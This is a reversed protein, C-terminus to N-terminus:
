RIDRYDGRQGFRTRPVYVIGWRRRADECLGYGCGGTRPQTAEGDAPVVQELWVAMDWVERSLLAATQAPSDDGCRM